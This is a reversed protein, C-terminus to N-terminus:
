NGRAWVERSVNGVPYFGHRDLGPCPELCIVAKAAPIKASSFRFVPIRSEYQWEHGFSGAILVAGEGPLANVTRMVARAPSEYFELGTHAFILVAAVIQLALLAPAKRLVTPDAVAGGVLLPLFLVAYYPHFSVSVFAVTLLFSLMLPVSRARVMGMLGVVSLVGSGAWLFTWSTQELITLLQLDAHQESGNIFSAVALPNGAMYLTMLFMPVCVALAKVILNVKSRWFIAVVIPLYLIAQYATFLSLLWLLAVWGDYKASNEKRSLFWVFLLGELATLPAMMVSGAQFLVSASFVWCGCLVLRADFSLKKALVAVVWVAQVLLTAFIIRWLLEQAAIGETAQLVTRVLPPHPYPINLLYKAEDTRVAGLNQYLALLVAFAQLLTATLIYWLRTLRKAPM